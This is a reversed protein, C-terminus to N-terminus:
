FGACALCQTLFPEPHLKLSYVTRFGKAWMNWTFFKIDNAKILGTEM